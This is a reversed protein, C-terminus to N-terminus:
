IMAFYECQNIAQFDMPSRRGRFIGVFARRGGTRGGRHHYGSLERFGCDCKKPARSGAQTAVRFFSAERTGEGEIGGIGLGVSASESQSVSSM